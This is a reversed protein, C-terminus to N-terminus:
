FGVKWYFGEDTEEATWGYFGSDIEGVAILFGTVVRHIGL